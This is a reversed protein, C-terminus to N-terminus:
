VCDKPFVPKVHRTRIYGKNPADGFVTGIDFFSSFNDFGVRPVYAEIAPYNGGRKIFVSVGKDDAYTAYVIDNPEIHLRLLERAAEPSREPVPKVSLRTGPAPKVPEM